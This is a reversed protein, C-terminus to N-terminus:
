TIKNHTKLNSIALLEESISDMQEAEWVIIINKCKKIKNNM